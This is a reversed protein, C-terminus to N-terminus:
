NQRTPGSRWLAACLGLGAFTLAAMLGFAMSWGFVTLIKALGLGALIAGLYGVGDLLGAATSARQRGGFDLAVVGGGVLSYPGLLFFGALGVLIVAAAGQDLAFGAQALREVITKLHSLALLSLALGCLLAGMIPTRRGKLYRDSFWGAFLTGACGLVPFVASKFAATAATAGMEFFYAPMWLNFCERLLTLIFSLLCMLVFLRNSLLIKFRALYATQPEALAEANNANASHNDWPARHGADGPSNWIMWHTAMGIAALVLAPVVFLSRWGLGWSLLLGVLLAALVAGFQYSISIAGMATGHSRTNFWRSVISVVGGWGMSQFLRNVAWFIAFFAVGSGLSFILSAVVSGALGLFLVFRGGRADALPGTAFKGLAYVLTGLSAITGFAM